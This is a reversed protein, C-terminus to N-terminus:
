KLCKHRAKWGCVEVCALWADREPEYEILDRDKKFTGDEKLYLCWLRKVIHGQSLLAERYGELQLGHWEAPVGSKIDILDGDHSLRDATGAYLLTAHYLMWEILDFDRMPYGVEDQFKQYAEVWGWTKEDVTSWDLTGHDMLETIRHVVKGREAHEPKFFRKDVVGAAELITSVSPLIAGDLKYVHTTEDFTLSKM